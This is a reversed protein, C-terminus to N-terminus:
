SSGNFGLKSTLDFSYSNFLVSVIHGFYIDSWRFFTSKRKQFSIKNPIFINEGASLLEGHWRVNICGFSHVPLGVPVCLCLINGQLLLHSLIYIHVARFHTLKLLDFQIHCVTAKTRDFFIQKWLSIPIPNRRPKIGARKLLLFEGLACSIRYFDAIGFDLHVPCKFLLYQRFEFLRAYPNCPIFLQWVISWHVSFESPCKKNLLCCCRTQVCRQETLNQLSWIKRNKEWFSQMKSRICAYWDIM